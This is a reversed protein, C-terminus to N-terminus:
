YEEEEFDKLYDVEEALQFSYEEIWRLTDKLGMNIFDDTKRKMLNIMSYEM